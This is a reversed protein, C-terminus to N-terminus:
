FFNNGSNALPDVDGVEKDIEEDTRESEILGKNRLNGRMDSKAIIGRDLLQMNAVLAQPDLTAEYFDRNLEITNEGTGGMFEMSWNVTNTIGKEVNTVLMGLKSNQGAFRIKAAEATEVGGSDTIIKAGTKILQAEKLEMGRDPMQNPSAQLLEASADIPLLVASRSGFTVGNKMVDTVWSQTLGSIVPTPQGVLFSSEEFDASNRYHAINIEALDYLPAKDPNTGNDISGIFQFPILDWTQGNFKRPIIDEGDENIILEDNEDYLRQKYVGDDLFLVRHYKVVEVSFQDEGVKEVEEALVVMTLVKVSNIVTERWNVISEAPYQKITSLGKAQAQTLGAASIPFDALLGYRGTELTNSISSQILQQLSQGAGDSNDILHEVSTDLEIESKKRGIMGTFGDKTHGTFNVYNARIKYQIYRDVNAQSDDKPNPIPLYQSGSLNHIGKVTQSDGKDLSHTKRSNKIADSGEVCDRVLQWRDKNRTYLRHQDSAPM